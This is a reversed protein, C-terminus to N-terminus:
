EDPEVFKVMDAFNVNPDKSMQLLVDYNTQAMM